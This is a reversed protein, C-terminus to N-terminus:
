PTAERDWVGVQSELFAVDSLGSMAAHILGMETEDPQGGREAACRVITLALRRQEYHADTVDGLFEYDSIRGHVWRTGHPDPGLGNPMERAMGLAISRLRLNGLNLANPMDDVTDLPMTM